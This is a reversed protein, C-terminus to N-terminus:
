EVTAPGGILVECIAVPPTTWYELAQAVFTDVFSGSQGNTILSYDAFHMPAGPAPKIKYVQQNSRFRDRFARADAEKQFAFVCDLRSPAAPALCRRTAELIVEWTLVYAEQHTAFTSGGKKWVRM